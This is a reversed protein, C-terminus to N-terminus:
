HEVRAVVATTDDLKARPHGAQRSRAHAAAVLRHAIRGPEDEPVDRLLAAIESFTLNDTVGDTVALLVDGHEVPAEWLHPTFLREGLAHDMVHRLWFYATETPGTPAVVEGLQRQVDWDSSLVSDDLTCQRLEGATTYRYVRSDGLNCVIATAPGAGCLKVV